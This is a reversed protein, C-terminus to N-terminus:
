SLECVLADDAIDGEDLVDATDDSAVRAEQDDSSAVAGDNEAAPEVIDTTSDDPTM